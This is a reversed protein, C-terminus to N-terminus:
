RSYIYTNHRSTAIYYSTYWLCGFVFTAVFLINANIAICSQYFPVHIIAYFALPCPSCFIIGAMHHEVWPFFWSDVATVARNFRIAVRVVSSTYLKDIKSGALIGTCPLRNEHLTELHMYHSWSWWSVLEFRVQARSTRVEKKFWHSFENCGM